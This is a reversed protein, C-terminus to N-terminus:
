KKIALVFLENERGHIEFERVVELPALKSLMMERKEHYNEKNFFISFAALGNPKLVRYFDQNELLHITDFCVVSDFSNDKFPLADGDGLVRPFIAIPKKHMEMSNDIGIFQNVSKTKRNRGKFMKELYGFGCGIDLVLGKFLADFDPGLHKRMERFKHAQVDRWSGYVDPSFMDM